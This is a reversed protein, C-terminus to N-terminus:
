KMGSLIENALLKIAEPSFNYHKGYFGSSNDTVNINTQNQRSGTIEFFDVKLVDAIKLVRNITLEKCAGNEIQSMRGKTVGLAKALTDIKIGKEERKEKINNGIIIEPNM